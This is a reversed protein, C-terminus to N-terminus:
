ILRMYGKTCGSTSFSAASSMQSKTKFLETRAMNHQLMRINKGMLSMIGYVETWTSSGSLLGAPVVTNGLWSVLGGEGLKSVRQAPRRLLGSWSSPEWYWM